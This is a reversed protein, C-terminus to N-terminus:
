MIWLKTLIVTINQMQPSALGKPLNVRLLSPTIKGLNTAYTSHCINYKQIVNITEWYHSLELTQVINLILSQPIQYEESLNAM